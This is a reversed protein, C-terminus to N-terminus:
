PCLIRMLRPSGTISYYTSRFKKDLEALLANDIEIDVLFDRYYTPICVALDEARTSTRYLLKVLRGTSELPHGISIRSSTWYFRTSM